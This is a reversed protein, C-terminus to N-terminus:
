NKTVSQKKMTFDTLTSLPMVPEKISEFKAPLTTAHPFSSKNLEEAGDLCDALTTCTVAQSIITGPSASFGTYTTALM